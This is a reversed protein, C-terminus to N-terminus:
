RRMPEDRRDQFALVDGTAKLVNAEGLRAGVARYLTLAAEYRALAEDNRKQFALVDGTAQLVNAEAEGERLARAANLAAELWRLRRPHYSNHLTNRWHRSYAVLMGQAAAQGSRTDESMRDIAAVVNLWEIPMDYRMRGERIADDYDVVVSLFAEAHRLHFDAQEEPSLPCDERVYTHILPHLDYREGVRRVLNRGVLRDLVDEFALRARRAEQDLGELRGGRVDAGSAVYQLARRTAGGAFVTLAQLARLGERRLVADPTRDRDLLDEVMKGALRRVAAQVDKQPELERVIFLTDAWARSGFVKGVALRIMEPHFAAAAALDLLSALWGPGVPVQDLGAGRVVREMRGRERKEVAREPVQGWLRKEVVENFALRLGDPETLDELRIHTDGILADLPPKEDPRLTLLAASCGSQPNLQQLLGALETAQARSLDEVNDRILLGPRAPDNLAVVVAGERQRPDEPLREMGYAAAVASYIEEVSFQGARERASVFAVRNGFRHGERAAVALALATKGIGGVGTLGFVAHPRVLDKGRLWSALQVREEGRGVFRAVMDWDPLPPQAALFLPGGARGDGPLDLSVNRDGVLHLIGARERGHSRFLSDRDRALMEARAPDQARIQKLREEVDVWAIAQLTDDAVYGEVLAAKAEELAEGAPAGRALAGYFARALHRSEVDYITKETGIVCPINAREHLARAVELTECASLIAVRVRSSRFATVLDGTQVLRERGVATELALGQPCGHCVFHVVQFAAGGDDGAVALAARLRDVTPPTLRVVAWGPADGTVADAAQQIGRVLAQWQAWVNLPVSPPLGARPGTAPAAIAVLMRLRRQVEPLAVAQAPTLYIRNYNGIINADGVISICSSVEDDVATGTPTL